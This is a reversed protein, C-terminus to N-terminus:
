ASLFRRSVYITLPGAEGTPATPLRPSSLTIRVRPQNQFWDSPNVSVKGYIPHEKTM